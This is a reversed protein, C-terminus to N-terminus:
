SIALSNLFVAPEKLIGKILVTSLLSYIKPINRALRMNMKYLPIISKYDASSEPPM